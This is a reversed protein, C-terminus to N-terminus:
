ALFKRTGRDSGAGSSRTSATLRLANRPIWRWAVLAGFGESIAGGVFASHLGDVIGQPDIPRPGAHAAFLGGLVAVGLTAGVMRATNVVGAAAGAHATPAAAVAVALLPGTNLGLGVGISLFAIEILVMDPTRSLWTLAFLGLGMLVLGSTMVVRAGLRGALKGSQLSVVFFALSMPLMQVGVAPATAAAVTQLYLPMLFLMAYMGFTMGMAAAAAASLAHSRFIALPLLPQEVQGLAFLFCVFLCGAAALCGITAPHGWGWHPGEIFAVSLV